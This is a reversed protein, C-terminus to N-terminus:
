PLQTRYLEVTACRILNSPDLCVSEKGLRQGCRANGMAKLFIIAVMGVTDPLSQHRFHKWKARLHQHKLSHRSGSAPRRRVLHGNRLDQALGKPTSLTYFPPCQRTLNPWRVRTM